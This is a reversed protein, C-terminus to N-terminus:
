DHLMELGSLVEADPRGLNLAVSAVVVDNVADNGRLASMGQALDDEIALILGCSGGRLILRLRAM